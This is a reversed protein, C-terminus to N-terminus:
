LNSTTDYIIEITDGDKVTRDTIIKDGDLIGDTVFVFRGVITGLTIPKSVVTNTKSNVTFVFARDQTQYVADIPVYPLSGSSDYLGVPITINIYGDNTIQTHYSDPIPYYVAYLTGQVADQTIFSPYSLFTEDDFYLKSPQAYSVKRAIARPVFAVATIPDEEIAQNLIVLPTGPSVADGQSVFVRQVTANFPSVPFMTATQIRAVHLQLRAIDRNLDLAQRQLELQKLGITKTLNSIEVASKDDDTSYESNRLGSVLLNNASLFQSKLQKTALIADDNEGETNGEELTKINQDLTELISSNLDILSRTEDLSKRTITALEDNNEDITNTLDIQQNILDVNLDYSNEISDLQRQAIQQQAYFINGGQYNSATSLLMTGKNVVSGPQVFVEQVVGPSLASITVVGTKEIKAQVTITPAKGISFVSVKKSIQTEEETTSNLRQLINSFIISALLLALLFYLSLFPRNSILTSIKEWRNNLPEFYTKWKRLQNNKLLTGFRNM